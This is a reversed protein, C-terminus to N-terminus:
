QERRSAALADGATRGRKAGLIEYQGLQRRAEQLAGGLRQEYEQVFRPVQSLAIAGLLALVVLTTDRFLRM